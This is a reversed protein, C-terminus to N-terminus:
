LSNTLKSKAVISISCGVCGMSLAKLLAARQVTSNVSCELYLIQRCQVM